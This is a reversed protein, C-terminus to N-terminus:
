DDREPAPGVVRTLSAYVSDLHRRYLDAFARRDGAAAARALSMDDVADGPGRVSPIPLPRMVIDLGLGRRHRHRRGRAADRLRWRGAPSRADSQRVRGPPGGGDPAPDPVA